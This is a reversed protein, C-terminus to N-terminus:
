LLAWRLTVFRGPEHDIIRFRVTESQGFATRYRLLYTSGVQPDAHITQEPGFQHLVKQANRHAKANNYADIYKVRGGDLFLRSYVSIPVRPARDSPMSGTAIREDGLDILNVRSDRVYGFSLHGPQYRDYLIETDDLFLRGEAIGGFRRQSFSFSCTEDDMAFLTILQDGPRHDDQRAQGTSGVIGLAVITLLVLPTIIRYRHPIRFSAPATRSNM